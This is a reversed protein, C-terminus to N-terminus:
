AASFGTLRLLVGPSGTRSWVEIQNLINVIQVGRPSLAYSVTRPYTALPSKDILGRQTLARLRETLVKPSIGPLLTVLEGHLKPATLLHWLVLANWRHGLFTLWDEVPCDRPSLRRPIDLAIRTHKNRTRM